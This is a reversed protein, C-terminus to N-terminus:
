NLLKDGKEQMLRGKDIHKSVSPQSIKLTRAIEAGSIGLRKNALYCILAKAESYINNRGKKYIDDVKLGLAYCVKAIVKDLNWGANLLKARIEISEEAEDLVQSVFESDGLIREDGRWYEKKRRLHIANNWGGMSRILGGGLFDISAEQELGAKVFERYEQIAKKRNKGFWTLVEDIEQFDNSQYGVITSHGCWPYKDLSSVDPVIKSKIPNLHIYRILGQFYTDEQCLISKYRNQYLYGNRKYRRNFYIAYGTLLSRMVDSLSGIGTRIM